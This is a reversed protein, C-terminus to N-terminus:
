YVRMLGELRRTVRDDSMVAACWGKVAECADECFDAVKLVLTEGFRGGYFDCNSLRTCHGSIGLYDSDPSAFVVENLIDRCRQDTLEDSGQHVVACRLAYCDEPSLWAHPAFSEPCYKDGLNARFWKCYRTQSGLDGYQLHGCIDPLILAGILAAIWNRGALSNRVSIVYPELRSQM